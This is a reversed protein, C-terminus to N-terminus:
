CLLQWRLQWQATRSALEMSVSLCSVLAEQCLALDQAILKDKAKQEDTKTVLELLSQLVQM